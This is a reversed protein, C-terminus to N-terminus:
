TCVEQRAHMPGAHSLQGPLTVSVASAHGEYSQAAERIDKMAIRWAVQYGVIVLVLLTLFVATVRAVNVGVNYVAPKKLTHEYTQPFMPDDRLHRQEPLLQYLRKAYENLDAQFDHYRGKFGLRIATFYLSLQEGIIARDERDREEISEYMKQLADCDDFFRDGGLGAPQKLGEPSIELRQDYWRMRGPWDLQTLQYDVFYILMKRIRDHWARDADPDRSAIEAGERLCSLAERRVSDYDLQQTARVQQAFKILFFFTPWCAKTLTLNTTTEPM